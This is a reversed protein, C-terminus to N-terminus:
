RASTVFERERGSGYVAKLVRNRLLVATSIISYSIRYVPNLPIIQLCVLFALFVFDTRSLAKKFHMGFRAIAYIACIVLLLRSDLFIAILTGLATAIGVGGRFGNLASYMHGFVPAIIILVFWYGVAEQDLVCIAMSVPMFGKAFEMMAVVIGTKTGCIRFANATGPNGDPSIVRIDVGCLLYPILYAYLVSGSLYGGIIFLLVELTM